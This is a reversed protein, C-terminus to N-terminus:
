SCTKLIFSINGISNKIFDKMVDPHIEKFVCLKSLNGYDFVDPEDKFISSAKENGQMDTKFSVRKKQMLEPPRVWLAM